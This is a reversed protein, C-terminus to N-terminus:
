EAIANSRHKLFRRILLFLIVGYNIVIFQSFRYDVVGLIPSLFPYLFPTPYFTEPHTLVDFVIHILWTGMEWVARSRAAAVLLFVSVVVPVSHFVGYLHDFIVQGGASHEGLLLHPLFTMVDPLVGFGVALPWRLLRGSVLYSWLGHAVTDL